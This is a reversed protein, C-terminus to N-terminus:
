YSLNACFGWIISRILSIDIFIFSRYIILSQMISAMTLASARKPGNLGTQESGNEQLSSLGIVEGGMNNLRGEEVLKEMNTNRQNTVRFMGPVSDLDEFDVFFQEGTCGSLLLLSVIAFYFKKM